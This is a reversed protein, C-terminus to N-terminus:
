NCIKLILDQVYNSHKNKRLNMSEKAKKPILKFTKRKCVINGTITIISLRFFFNWLNYKQKMKHSNRILKM